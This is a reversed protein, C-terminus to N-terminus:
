SSEKLSKDLHIGIVFESGVVLLRAPWHEEVTNSLVFRYLATSAAAAVVDDGPSPLM